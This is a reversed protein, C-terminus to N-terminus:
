CFLRWVAMVGKALDLAYSARALLTDIWLPEAPPPVVLRHLRSKVEDREHQLMTQLEMRRTRIADLTPYSLFDNKNMICLIM